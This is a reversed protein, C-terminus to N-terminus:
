GLMQRTTSWGVQLKVVFPHRVALLARREDGAKSRPITKIAYTRGCLKSTALFVEGFADRALRGNSPSTRSPHWTPRTKTM